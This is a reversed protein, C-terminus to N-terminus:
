IGCSDEQHHVKMARFMFNKLILKYFSQMKNTQLTITTAYQMTYVMYFKINLCKDWQPVLAQLGTHFFMTDLTHLWLHCSALAPM